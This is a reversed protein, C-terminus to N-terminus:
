CTNILSMMTYRPQPSLAETSPGQGLAGACIIFSCCHALLESWSKLSEKAAQGLQNWARQWYCITNGIGRAESLLLLCKRAGWLGKGQGLAPEWLRESRRQLLATLESSWDRSPFPSILQWRSFLDTICQKHLCWVEGSLCGFVHVAGLTRGWTLM